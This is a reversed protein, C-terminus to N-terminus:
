PIHIHDPPLGQWYRELALLFGQEISRTIKRTDFLLNTKRQLTLHDKITRYQEPQTALEIAKSEYEQWSNTILSNLELTHLLSAAMRGTMSEGKITLLPLSMWLVDNATTGANYPLTDLFLDCAAYRAFYDPMGVRKGFILRDSAVGRASAERRLNENTIDSDAYLLLVSDSVNLLIRMWSDFVIPTIKYSNCFSCFVFSNEPLGLESRSPTPSPAPRLGDSVQFSHPLYIMKESYFSQASEPVVTEDAIMYDINPASTTAPYGLYHMQVPAIRGILVGMRGGQTLGTLDVAVDIAMDRAMQIVDADSMATIDVFSDFAAVIRMRYPDDEKAHGNSFAILEFQDKDHQEFMQATLLAVPHSQFDASLYAIRIKQGIERARKPLPKAKLQQVDTALWLEAAKRQIALSGSFSIIQFPPCTKQGQMVRTEIQAMLADLGQWDCIRMKTNLVNGLYVSPDAMLSVGREYHPLALHHLSQAQYTAGLNFHADGFDPDLAVAHEYCARALLPQGAHMHTNGQEFHAQASLVKLKAEL